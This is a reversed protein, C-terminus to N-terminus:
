ERTQSRYFQTQAQVLKLTARPLDVEAVVRPVILVSRILAPICFGVVQDDGDFVAFPVTSRIRRLEFLQEVLLRANYLELTPIALFFGEGSVHVDNVVM